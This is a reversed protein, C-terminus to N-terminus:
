VASLESGSSLHRNPNELCMSTASKEQWGLRFEFRLEAYRGTNRTIISLKKM